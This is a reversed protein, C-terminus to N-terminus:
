SPPPWAFDDGRGAKPKLQEGKILVKYYPRQSLPLRPKSSNVSFDTVSSLTAVATLGNGLDSTIMEPEPLSSSTGQPLLRQAEQLTSDMAPRVVSVEGVTSQQMAPSAGAAANGSAAPAGEAPTSVAADGSTAAANPQDSGPAVSDVSQEGEPHKAPVVERGMMKAQEEESGALPINREIKALSLDRRLEKEVFHALKVSGRETFHVGDDARLRKVQGSMDPGYASFRGSEDTFGNWTDIYKASNIFAKERFVENMMEADASQDPSRMVPLGVWYVAINAARLKKIIAEVREGYAQRWPESGVKLWDKGSRIAQDDNAGFMVVAIQFTDNKMIDALQSDWNNSDTRVLGGSAKSRNTFELNKDEQFARYLGQWLGDGLSDGIVLIRYRDGTPFPNIYSHQVSPTSGQQASAVLVGLCNLALALLAPAAASWARRWRPAATSLGLCFASGFM